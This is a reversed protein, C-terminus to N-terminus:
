PTEKAKTSDLQQDTVVTVLGLRAAPIATDGALLRGLADRKGAGMAVIIREVGPRALVPLTLTVRGGPPKPSDALSTVLGGSSLVAHGPFLSAVHGDEGLGLVAVDLAGGFDRAFAASAREVAAAASEGDLVLPLLSSVPQEKSLAGGRFADGRNSAADSMPVLREDIWTLRLSGWLGAPLSERVLRLAGLASGGPIGLRAGPGVRKLAAAILDAAVELPRPTVKLEVV